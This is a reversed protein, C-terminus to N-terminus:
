SIGVVAVKCRESNLYANADHSLAGQPLWKWLVPGLDKRVLDAYYQPVETTEQEFFRRCQPDTDLRKRIAHHRRSTKGLEEYSRALNVLRSAAGMTAQMRRFTARPSYVHRTLGVMNDYLQEWTYGQPRVNTHQDNLVQFPVPLVRQTRQYDLNLAAARGYATLVLCTPYAGPTMDVFRKTLEFPEPGSDTDLGMVFNTQVYPIYRLILNVHESVYRVKDMGKRAGTRSKENMDFWSEIGPLLAHFGNRRLRKLHPESLLSLSSEAIFRIRGPPVAEEILDMYDDFRVGFNPDHWAVLPRSFRTLLFKLDERIEDFDLPQYPTTADICFSCTYPCGLSGIMPVCKFAPSKRLAVQIFDWRERVGPITRPQRDAALYLGAPRHPSCDELVNRLTEQDTFGLVYDFYKLADEPFCRAHPGGLVTVIGRSRFFNSFAYAIYASETFTSIFILDLDGPFDRLPDERGTFCDYLVEHGQQRCWVAIAQPMISTFSPYM